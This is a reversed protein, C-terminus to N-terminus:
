LVTPMVNHLFQVGAILRGDIQYPHYPSISVWFIGTNDSEYAMWGDQCYKFWWPSEDCAIYLYSNFDAQGNFLNLARQENGASVNFNQGYNKMM